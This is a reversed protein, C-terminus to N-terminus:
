IKEVDKMSFDARHTNGIHLMVSVAKCCDMQFEAVLFPAEGQREILETVLATPNKRGCSRCKYNNIRVFDYYRIDNPNLPETGDSVGGVVAELESDGVEFGSMNGSKIQSIFARVTKRDDNKM